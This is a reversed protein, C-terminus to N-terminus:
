RPGSETSHSSPRMSRTWPAVSDHMNTRLSSKVGFAAAKSAANELFFYTEALKHGLVTGNIIWKISFDSQFIVATKRQLFLELLRDPSHCPLDAKSCYM